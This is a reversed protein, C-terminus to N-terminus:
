GFEYIRHPTVCYSLPIDFDGSDAIKDVADFYSFGVKLVDKRCQALLKDYFGKGYGVRNGNKDFALLPVLILDLEEADILVGDVPEAIGWKNKQFKLDDTHLINELMQTQENVRPIAFQIGPHQFELFHLIADTAFEKKSDIGLYTHVLLLQPLVLKQFQILLLDDFRNRESVTLQLRKQLYINRAEQKTM